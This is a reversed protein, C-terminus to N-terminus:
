EEFSKVLEDLFPIVNDLIAQMQDPTPKFHELDIVTVDQFLVDGHEDKKNCGNTDIVPQKEVVTM